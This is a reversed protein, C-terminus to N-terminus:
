EDRRKTLSSQVVSSEYLSEPYLFWFKEGESLTPSMSILLPKMGTESAIERFNKLVVDEVFKREQPDEFLFDEILIADKIFLAMLSKYYASARGGQSRYWDSFDVIQNPNFRDKYAAEMLQRHFSRIPLGNELTIKSLPTGDFKSLNKECLNKKIVPSGEKKGCYFNLNVLGRKVSNASHFKDESYEALIPVLDLSDAATLFRHCEYNPTGLHQLLLLVPKDSPVCEPRRYGPVSKKIKEEVARSDQRRENLIRVAEAPTTYIEESIKIRDTM